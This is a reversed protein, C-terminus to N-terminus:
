SGTQFTKDTWWCFTIRDPLWVCVEWVSRYGEGTSRLVELHEWGWRSSQLISESQALANERAGSLVQLSPPANLISRSKVILINLNQLQPSRQAPRRSVQNRIGVGTTRLTGYGCPMEDIMNTNTVTVLNAVDYYPMYKRLRQIYICESSCSYRLHVWRCATYIESVGPYLSMENYSICVRDQGAELHAQFHWDLSSLSVSRHRSRALKYICKSAAISRTQLHVQLGHNLSNPSAIPLRSPALKSICKCAAISRTQLHLQFGHDLSNPSASPPRSRAPKSICKSATISRTQLHVQLGHDLSIPPTSPPPWDTPPLNPLSARRSRLRSPLPSEIWQNVWLQAFTSFQTCCPRGVSSVPQSRSVTSRSIICYATYATSLSHQVRHISYETNVSSWPM